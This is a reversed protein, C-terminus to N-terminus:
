RRVDEKVCGEGCGKRKPWLTCDKIKLVPKGFLSSLAARPANIDVEALNGTDPCRLVRKNRYRRFFDLFIPLTVYFMGLAIIGALAMWPTNM